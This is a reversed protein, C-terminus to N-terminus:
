DSFRNSQVFFREDFEALAAGVVEALISILRYFAIASLLVGPALHSNLLTLATAEFVGLGGPSGPIILGFLWALSYASFLMPLQELNMPMLALLTLIFGAGRLVIFGCEGLFPRMPYRRLRYWLVLPEDSHKAKLKMTGLFQLIPNLIKPHVGILVALLCVLQILWYERPYTILALALAASAMLLPELLVSLTASELPVRKQKLAVIRGYFHWVNGPIYKAINTTLYVHLGWRRNVWEKFEQLTWLWVWASWLHASLTIFFALFLWGWGINELQIESVEQWHHKFNAAVFFLTGGLIMWRVYPKLRSFLAKIKSIKTPQQPPTLPDSTLESSIKIPQM